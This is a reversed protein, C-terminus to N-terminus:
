SIPVEASTVRFPSIEAGVGLQGNCLIHVDKNSPGAGLQGNCLNHFDTEFAGVQWFHGNFLIHADKVCLYSVQQNTEKM